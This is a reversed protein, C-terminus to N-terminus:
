GIALKVLAVAAVIAWIINLAAPQKAKQRLSIVAVGLAGTLNLLQFTVSDSAIVKFSVLVYALLIAAMGYWGITEILMKKNM